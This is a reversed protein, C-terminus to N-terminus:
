FPFLEFPRILRPQSWLVSHSPCAATGGEWATALTVEKPFRSIQHSLFPRYKNKGRLTGGEAEKGDILLRWRIRVDACGEPVSIVLGGRLEKVKGDGDPRFTSEMAKKVDWVYGSSSNENATVPKRGDAHKLHIDLGSYFGVAALWLLVPGALLITWFTAVCGPSDKPAQPAARPATPSDEAEGRGPEEEPREGRSEDQDVLQGRVIVTGYPSEPPLGLRRRVAELSQEANDLFEESEQMLREVESLASPALAPSADFDSPLPLSKRDEQRLLRRYVEALAHSELHLNEAKEGLARAQRLRERALDHRLQYIRRQDRRAQEELAEYEETLRRQANMLVLILAMADNLKQLAEEQGRQAEELRAQLDTVPLHRVQAPLKGAAAKEAAELLARGKALELRRLQPERVLAQVVQELLWDPILEKGRRFDAWKTKSYPFREALKRADWGKTVQQLWEALEAAQQTEAQVKIPRGRSRGEGGKREGAM